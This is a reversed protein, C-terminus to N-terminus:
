SGTEVGEGGEVGLELHGARDADGRTRMQEHVQRQFEIIQVIDAEVGDDDESCGGDGGVCDDEVSFYLDSQSSGNWSVSNELHM